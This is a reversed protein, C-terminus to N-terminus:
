PTGKASGTHALFETLLRKAQALAQARHSVEHKKEAPVQGFTKGYPPYFFIPDYGFGKDGLIEGHIRGYVKGEAVGVLRDPLAIAVASTFHAGRLSEPVDRLLKLVKLNNDHDDKEAGAFRASYVGPAGDLADCSLGSDEALTLLGTQGAYGQAKLAANERFTTGTEPVERFSPLDSLGMLELDLDAVLERLEALKKKNTSAVLLQRRM